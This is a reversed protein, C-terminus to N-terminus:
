MNFLGDIMEKQCQPCYHENHAQNYMWGSKCAEEMAAKESVYTIHIGNRSLRGKCIDCIVICANINMVSM